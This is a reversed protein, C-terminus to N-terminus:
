STTLRASVARFRQPLETGKQRSKFAPIAGVPSLQTLSEIESFTRLRRDGRERLLAAALALVMAVLGGLALNNLVRPGSPISPATAYELAAVNDLLAKSELNSTNQRLVVGEYARQASDADRQLLNAQDRVAKMKLVKSRQAELSQRTQAERAVNVSNSIGFSGSVRAVEIAIKQRMGAISNRLEQVQPHEDGLKTSLQELQNEQQVLNAKLTSVLPNMMVDQTKDGQAKVAAQRSGSDAVASQIQVVQTSLENLRAMEVDLREDTVVIGERQQFESLRTQAAQLQDRLLKGNADFFEIYQKAPATRLQMNVDLYAKIFANVVTAAFQPDAGTYALNIVNSGRSPHVELGKRFLDALWGKFDGVGKTADMWKERLEPVENLKLDTVVKLAVRQSTMVDIQTMLFSPSAAGTLVVGAIPDPSKIDVVMSGNATYSKAKLLTFAAVAGLVLFFTSAAIIWRARLIAFLQEFTM